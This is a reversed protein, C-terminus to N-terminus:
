HGGKVCKSRAQNYKDIDSSCVKKDSKTSGSMPSMSGTYLDDSVISTLAGFGNDTSQSITNMPMEGPNSVMSGKTFASMNSIKDSQTHSSAANSFRELWAKLLEISRQGEWVTPNADNTALIPYGRLWKPCNAGASRKTENFDYLAISQKLDNPLSNYYKLFEGSGPDTPTLYAVFKYSMKSKKIITNRFKKTVKM